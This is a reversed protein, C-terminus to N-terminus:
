YCNTTALLEPRRSADTTPPSREGGVHCEPLPRSFWSLHSRHRHHQNVPHLGLPLPHMFCPPPGRVYSPRTGATGNPPSGTARRALWDGVPRWLLCFLVGLLLACPTVIPVLPARRLLGALVALLQARTSANGSLAATLGILIGGLGGAAAPPEPAGLPRARSRREQLLVSPVKDHVPARARRRLLYTDKTM